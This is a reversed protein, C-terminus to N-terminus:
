CHTYYQYYYGMGKGRKCINQTLYQSAIVYLCLMLRDNKQLIFTGAVSNKKVYANMIKIVCKEM